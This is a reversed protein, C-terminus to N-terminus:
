PTSKSDRDANRRAANKERLIKLVRDIGGDSLVAQFQARFVAAMGIGEISVDILRWHGDKRRMRFDVRAVRQVPGNPNGRTIHTQVTWDGRPERRLEVLTVGEDKYHETAQGSIALVHERYEQVFEVRQPDTLDDWHPGLALRSLTDFDIRQAFVDAVREKKLTSTLTTDRLVALAEDIGAQVAARVEPASAADDQESAAPATPQALSWVVWSMGIVSELLSHRRTKM